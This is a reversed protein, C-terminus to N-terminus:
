FIVESIFSFELPKNGGHLITYKSDMFYKQVLQIDVCLLLSIVNLCLPLWCKRLFETAIEVEEQVTKNSIEKVTRQQCQM